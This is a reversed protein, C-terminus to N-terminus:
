SVKELAAALETTSRHLHYPVMIARGGWTELLPAEPLSEATYDGGKVWYQPRLQKLVAEPGDEPFILVADVCSLARLM